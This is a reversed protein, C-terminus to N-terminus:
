FFPAACLRDDVVATAAAAAGRAGILLLRKRVGSSLGLPTPKIDGHYAVQRLSRLTERSAGGAAAFAAAAALTPHHISEIVGVRTLRLAQVDGCRRGQLVGGPPSM